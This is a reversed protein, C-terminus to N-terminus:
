RERERELQEDREKERQSNMEREIERELQEDREKERWSNM